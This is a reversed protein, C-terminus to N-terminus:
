RLATVPTSGAVCSPAGMATRTASVLDPQVMVTGANKFSVMVDEGNSQVTNVVMGAPFASRCWKWDGPQLTSVSVLMMVNPFQSSKMGYLYAGDHVGLPQIGPYSAKVVRSVFGDVNSGSMLGHALVQGGQASVMGMGVMGAVAAWILTKKM